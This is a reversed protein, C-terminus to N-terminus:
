GGALEQGLGLLGEDSKRAFQDSKFDAKAEQRIKQAPIIIKADVARAMIEIAASSLELQRFRDFALFLRHLLM